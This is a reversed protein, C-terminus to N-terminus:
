RRSTGGFSIENGDPDAYVVKRMGEEYQETRLADIGRATIADILEDLDEVMVMSLGRGARDPLVEFYVYCHAGVEWVAERENPFFSPESGLLQRYWALAPGYDSVAFGAFLEVM